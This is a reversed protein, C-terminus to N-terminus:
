GSLMEKSCPHQLLDIDGWMHGGLSLASDSYSSVPGQSLSPDHPEPECGM